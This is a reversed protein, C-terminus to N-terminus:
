SADDATTATIARVIVDATEAPADWMAVHGAGAIVNESIGERAAWAPMSTAINGTTDREGRALALPIPTRYSPDPVVLEATAQWVDLFRDKPMRAMVAATREIAHPTVASAAALMGPLRRAPIMALMPRSLTRLAFREFGSLAGTNPASGLVVLGAAISPSQQVLAQSLNGGLSHGVLIPREVALAAPLATLDDLADRATFRHGDDLASEGHGRLDWTIVTHGAAAVAAAVEDWSTSDMGAGHTFIVPQRTGSTVSVALTAGPRKLMLTM